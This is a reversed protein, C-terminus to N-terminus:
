EKAFIAIKAPTLDTEGWTTLTIRSGMHNLNFIEYSYYMWYINSQIVHYVRKRNDNDVLFFSIFAHNEITNRDLSYVNIEHNSNTSRSCMIESCLYSPNFQKKNKQQFKCCHCVQLKVM